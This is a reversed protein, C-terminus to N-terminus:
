ASALQDVLSRKESDAKSQAEMFKAKEAALDREAVERAAAAEAAQKQSAVEFAANLLKLRATEDQAAILNAEASKLGNALEELATRYYKKDDPLTAGYKAMDENKATEAKTLDDEGTVALGIFG